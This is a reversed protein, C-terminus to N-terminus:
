WIKWWPKSKQEFTGPMPIMKEPNMRRLEEETIIKEKEFKEYSVTTREFIKKNIKAAIIDTQSILQDIKESQGYFTLFSQEALNFVKVDISVAGSFETIIGTVVYDAATLRGFNLIAQDRSTEESTEALAKLTKENGTIQTQGRWFLRSNLMNVVGDTIYTIDKDTNSEFPVITITKLSDTATQAQLQGCFLLLIGSM